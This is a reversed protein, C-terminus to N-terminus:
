VKEGKENIFNLERYIEGSIKEFNLYGNTIPSMSIFLLESYLKNYTETKCKIDDQNLLM